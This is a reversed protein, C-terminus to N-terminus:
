KNLLKLLEEPSQGSALLAEVEQETMNELKDLEITMNNAEDNVTIQADILQSQEAISPASFFLGLDVTAQFTQKIQRILQAALLSHGGLDFFNDHVGIRKIKLCDQWLKALRLETPSSADIFEAELEPREYLEHTAQTDAPNAASSRAHEKRLEPHSSAITVSPLPLLDLAKQFALMGEKVSFDSSVAASDKNDTWRDWNMVMWPTTGNRSQHGVFANAYSGAMAHITQGTGGIKASLSSMVVCFDLQKTDVYASLQELFLRQAALYTECQSSELDTVLGIPKSDLMDYCCILGDLESPLQRNSALSQGLKDTQSPDLYLALIQSGSKELDEIFSKVTANNKFDSERSSLILQGQVTDALAQSFAQGAGDLGGLVLYTKKHDIQRQLPTQNLPLAQLNLEWYEGSRLAAIPKTQDHLLWQYIKQLTSTNLADVDLVACRITPQEYELSAILGFISAKIPQLAASAFPGTIGRGVFRLARTQTDQLASLAKAINLFELTSDLKADLSEDLYLINDFHQQEQKLTSFLTEIQAFSKFDLTFQTTTARTFTPTSCALIVQHGNAQLTEQLAKVTQSHSGFILFSSKSEANQNLLPASKWSDVYFWKNPDIQRVTLESDSKITAKKSKGAEIWYRTREFPYTPLSVKLRKDQQHLADWDVPQFRVWAKALSSLIFDTAGTTEHV